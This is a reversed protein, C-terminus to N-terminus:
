SQEVLHCKVDCTSAPCSCFRVVKTKMWEVLADAGRLFPECDVRHVAKYVKCELLVYDIIVAPDSM